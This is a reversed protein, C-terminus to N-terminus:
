EKTTFPGLIFPFSFFGLLFRTQQHGTMTTTKTNNHINHQKNNHSLRVKFQGCTFLSLSSAASPQDFEVSVEEFGANRLADSLEGNKVLKCTNAADKSSNLTVTLTVQTQDESTSCTTTFEVKEVQDLAGEILDCIDDAATAEFTITFTCVDTDAAQVTAHVTVDLQIEPTPSPTRTISPSVSISPTVSPSPSISPTVSPSPSISPTVSPSVSISPTVSPTPSVSPTVSPSVSISPTVSPTADTFTIFLDYMQTDEVDVSDSGMSVEIFLEGLEVGSLYLLEEEGFTANDVSDLLNSDSDYVSLALDYIILSNTLNFVETENEGVQPSTFYSFGVPVVRVVAIVPESVNVVFFDGPEVTTPGLMGSVSINWDFSIEAATSVDDNGAYSDGYLYGVGRYDDHLPGAFSQSIYPEMLADDPGQMIVHALNLAHGMEHTILNTRYFFNTWFSSPETIDLVCDGYNPTYAFGLINGPDDINFGFFRVDGRVGLVGSQANFIVGDDNPEYVYTVGTGQSWYDLAEQFLPQWV